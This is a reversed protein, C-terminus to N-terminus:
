ASPVSEEGPGCRKLIDDLLQGDLRHIPLFLEPMDAGGIHREFWAVDHWAGHKYGTKHYVGLKTFGMAEHLKESNENPITVGGYVNKVNQMRLIEILATYFAKGIGRRVYEPQIYVSLEANWRYAAREKQRHAYAYGVVSGDMECVLYPYQASITHIRQLFEALAPPECEFSVATQLVYPTYIELLRAADAGQVFRLIPKKM